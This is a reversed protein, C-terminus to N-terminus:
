TLSINITLGGLQTGVLFFCNKDYLVRRVCEWKNDNGGEPGTKAVTLPFGFSASFSGITTDKSKKVPLSPSRKYRVEWKYKANKNGFKTLFVTQRFGARKTRTEFETRIITDIKFKRILGKLLNFKIVAM